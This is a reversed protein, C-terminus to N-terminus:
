AISTFNFTCTAREFLLSDSFGLRSTALDFQLLYNELQRAGIVISTRPNVGGDVFGLCLADGGIQVMSNQGHITWVVNKNQLVLDIQPVVPGIRTFGIDQLRFCAGFPAVPAVRAVKPMASAFAQVLAKYISTELVTYPNVTSIKTGGVGENDISLLTKNLPVAKGNVHVSTVGIFYEVSPEGLFGSATNVKNIFLPTYKLNKSVDFNNLDYYPGDGFVIAGDDFPSLCLAFKRKLSFAAALQSPLAVKSRGLGAIGVVGSALGQLVFESGCLFIFNPVTVARGPNRGDTSQISLVDIRIDGHTGTNSIPNDPGAGCIGGGCAKANALNCQASGCRATKNTSSVYGKECDVWLINGGLHVTLKVPVLPTRQKIQTVYQLTATDKAVRLVLAKPRLSTQATIPSLSFILLSCLLLFSQAVSM